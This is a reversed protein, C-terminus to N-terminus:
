VEVRTFWPEGETGPPRRPAHLAVEVDHQAVVLRANFLRHDVAHRIESAELELAQLQHRAGHGSSRLGREQGCTWFGRKDRPGCMIVELHTCVGLVVPM